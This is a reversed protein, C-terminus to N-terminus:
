RWGHKQFKTVQDLIWNVGRQRKKEERSYVALHKLLKWVTKKPNAEDKFGMIRNIALVMEKVQTDTPKTM